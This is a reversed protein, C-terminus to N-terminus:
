TARTRDDASLLTAPRGLLGRPHRNVQHQEEHRGTAQWHVFVVDENAAIGHGGNISKWCPARGAPADSQSASSMSAVSASAKARLFGCATRAVIFRSSVGWNDGTSTLTSECFRRTTLVRSVAILVKFTRRSGRAQSHTSLSLNKPSQACSLPSTSTM